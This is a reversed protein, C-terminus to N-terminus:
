LFPKITMEHHLGHSVEDSKSARQVVHPISLSENSQTILCCLSDEGYIPKYLQDLAELSAPQMRVNLPRPGAPATLTLPNAYPLPQGRAGSKTHSSWSWLHVLRSLIIWPESWQGFLQVLCCVHFLIILLWCGHPIWLQITGNRLSLTFWYGSEKAFNLKFKEINLGLLFWMSPKRDWDLYIQHHWECCVQKISYYEVCVRESYWSRWLLRTLILHCVFALISRNTLVFKLWKTSILTLVTNKTHGPTAVVLASRPNVSLAHDPIHM